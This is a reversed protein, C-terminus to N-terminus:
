QFTALEAVRPVVVSKWPVMMATVLIVMFVPAVIPTPPSPWPPRASAMFPASVSSVFTIMGGGAPQAKAAAAVGVGTGVVAGVAAGVAPGVVPGLV